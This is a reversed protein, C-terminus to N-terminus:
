IFFLEQMDNILNREKKRELIKEFPNVEVIEEKRVNKFFFM